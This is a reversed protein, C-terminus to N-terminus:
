HIIRRTDEQHTLYDNEGSEKPFFAASLFKTSIAGGRSSAELVRAMM